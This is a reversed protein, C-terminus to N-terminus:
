IGLEVMKEAIDDYSINASDNYKDWYNKSWIEIRTGVGIIIVDKEFNGHDRLNHPITIRGQKDFICEMAGSFFLRVFARANKNTLPLKKLKEEFILWENEPFIFLCNDLGKTVFFREELSERFKSPINIRGKKDITHLYEGIFM